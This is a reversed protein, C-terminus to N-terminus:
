GAVRTALAPRICECGYLIDFCYNTRKYERSVELRLSLGSVPDTAAMIANGLGQTDLLPRSAFAFADRHFALNVVHDEKVTIAVASSIEVKLGPEFVISGAGSAVNADGTSIAYPQSDGAFTIVDGEVITGTGANAMVITKVGVAYTSGDATAGSATGATHTPINQDMAWDFGLKRGTNGEILGQNSGSFSMDQFARLGLANAECDTDMVFRRDGPPALQNFLRKRAATAATVDSAFPTTGATGEYGYVKIYTGLIAADVVNVIAKIAEAAQLPISGDMIEKLDQDNMHFDAKKWQDLTLTTETPVIDTAGPPVAAPTVDGATIESPIPINIVAGKEQALTGYDLNVLKPMIANERLAMLGQALLKPMFTTLTNAM